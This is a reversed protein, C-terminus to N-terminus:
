PEKVLNLLWEEGGAERIDLVGSGVKYTIFLKVVSDPCELDILKQEEERFNPCKDQYSKVQALIIDHKSVAIVDFPGHSGATRWAKYGANTFYKVVRYETQRGQTYQRNVLDIGSSNM